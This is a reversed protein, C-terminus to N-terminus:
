VKGRVFKLTFYEINKVQFEFNGRQRQSESESLRQIGEGEGGGKGGGGGRCDIALRLLGLHTEPVYISWDKGCFSAVLIEAAIFLLMRSTCSYKKPSNHDNISSFQGALMRIWQFTFM